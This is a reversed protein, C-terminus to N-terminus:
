ILLFNIKGSVNKATCIETVDLVGLLPMKQVYVVTLSSMRMLGSYFYYLLLQRVNVPGIKETM